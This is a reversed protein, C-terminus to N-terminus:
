PFRRIPIWEDNSGIRFLVSGPPMPKGGPTVFERAQNLLLGSNDPLAVATRGGPLFNPNGGADALVPLRRPTYWETEDSYLERSPTRM